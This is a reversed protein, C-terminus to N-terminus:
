AELASTITCIFNLHHYRMATEKFSQMKPVDDCMCDM